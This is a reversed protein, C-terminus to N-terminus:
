IFLHSKRNILKGKQNWNGNINPIYLDHLKEIHFQTISQKSTVYLAKAKCNVDEEIRFQKHPPVASLDNQAYSNNVQM